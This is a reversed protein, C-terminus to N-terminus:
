CELSQLIIISQTTLTNYASHTVTLEPSAAGHGARAACGVGYVADESSLRGTRRVRYSVCVRCSVYSM